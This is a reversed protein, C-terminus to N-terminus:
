KPRLDTPFQRSARFVTVIEVGNSAVRYVVRYPDVIVERITPDNREPVTRGSEPFLRLREAAGFLRRVVLDAYRESDQRIYNRIGEIDRLAEPSWTLPTM